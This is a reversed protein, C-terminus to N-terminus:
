TTINLLGTESCPLNLKGGIGNSPPSIPRGRGNNNSAAIEIIDPYWAEIRKYVDLIKILNQVCDQPPKAQECNSTSLYLLFIVLFKM